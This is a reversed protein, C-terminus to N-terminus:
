EKHGDIYFNLCGMYTCLIWMVYTREMVFASQGINYILIFCCAAFLMLSVFDNQRFLYRFVRCFIYCGFVMIPIFGALGNSVLVSLYGNHMNTYTLHTGSLNVEVSMNKYGYGFLPNRKWKNIAEGWIEYRGSAEGIGGEISRTAEKKVDGTTIKESKDMITYIGQQCGRMSFFVLLIALMAIIMALIFVVLAQQKKRENDGSFGFRKMISLRHRVYLFVIIGTTGLISFLPTLSNSLSFCVFQLLLNIVCFVNVFHRNQLFVFRRKMYLVTITALISLASTVALTIAGTYIGILQIFGASRESIGQPLQISGADYIWHLGLCLTAFSVASLLFSVIVFVWNIMYVYKQMEKRDNRKNSVCYVYFYIISFLFVFVDQVFYNARTVILTIVNGLLFLLLLVMGTARLSEKNFIMDHIVLLGGWFVILYVGIDYVFHTYYTSASLLILSSILIFSSPQLIFFLKRNSFKQISSELM